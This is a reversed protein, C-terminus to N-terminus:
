TIILYEKPSEPTYEETKGLVPIVSTNQLYGIINETWIGPTYKNGKIERLKGETIL